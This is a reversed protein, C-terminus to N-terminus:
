IKQEPANPFPMWHTILGVYDMGVAHLERHKFSTPKGDILRYRYYGKWEFWEESRITFPDDITKHEQSYWILVTEFVAGQYTAVIIRQGPEPLSEKISVWEM